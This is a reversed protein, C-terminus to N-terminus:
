RASSNYVATTTHTSPIFGTDEALAALARLWQATEGTPGAVGEQNQEKIRVKKNIKICPQM